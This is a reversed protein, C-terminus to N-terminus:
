IVYWCFGLRAHSTRYEVICIGLELRELITDEPLRIRGFPSTGAVRLRRPIDRLSQRSPYGRMTRDMPDAPIRVHEDSSARYANRLHDADLAM